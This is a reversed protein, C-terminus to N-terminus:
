QSWAEVTVACPHPIRSGKERDWNGSLLAITLGVSYSFDDEM